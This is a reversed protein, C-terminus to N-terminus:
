DKTKTFSILKKIDFPENFNNETLNNQQKDIYTNVKIIEGTSELFLKCFKSRVNHLLYELFSIL